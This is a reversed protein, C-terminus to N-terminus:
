DSFDLGRLRVVQTQRRQWFEFRGQTTEERVSQSGVHFSNEPEETKEGGDDCRLRGLHLM